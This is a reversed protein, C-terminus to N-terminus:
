EANVIMGTGDDSLLWVKTGDIQIVRANVSASSTNGITPAFTISVNSSEGPVPSTPMGSFQVQDFTLGDLIVFSSGYNWSQDTGSNCIWSSGNYNYLGFDSLAAFREEDMSGHSGSEHVVVYALDERLYVDYSAGPSVSYKVESTSGSVPRTLSRGVGVRQVVSTGTELVGYTPSYPTGYLKFGITSAACKVNRVVYWRWGDTAPLDESLMFVGKSAYGNGDFNGRLGYHAVEYETPVTASAGDAAPFLKKLDTSIYLDSADKLPFAAFSSGTGCESFYGIHKSTAFRTGYEKNGNAKDVISIDKGAPLNRAVMWGWIDSPVFEAEMSDYSAYLSMSPWQVSLAGMIVLSARDIQKASSTGKELINTDGAKLTIRYNYSGCPLPIYVSIDQTTALGLSISVASEGSGSVVEQVSKTFPIEGNEVTVNEGQADIQGDNLGVSTVSFSGCISADPSSLVLDTASTPVDKVTIKLLGGLHYFPMVGDSVTAAMPFNHARSVDDYQWTDPFTFVDAASVMSAPYWAKTFNYERGPEGTFTFVGDGGECTFECLDGTASDLVMVRDGNEWSFDGDDSILAKTDESLVGTLTYTIGEAPTDSPTEKGEQTCAAALLLTCILFYHNNKM